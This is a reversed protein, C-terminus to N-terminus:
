KILDYIYNALISTILAFIVAYIISEKKVENKFDILNLETRNDNTQNSNDTENQLQNVNWKINFNDWM